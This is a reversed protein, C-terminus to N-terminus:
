HKGNGNGNGNSYGNGNGHSPGEISKQDTEEEDRKMESSKRIIMAVLEGLETHETVTLRRGDASLECLETYREFQRKALMSFDYESERPEVQLERMRIKALRLNIAQQKAAYEIEHTTKRMSLLKPLLELAAKPDRTQVLSESAIETCFGEMYQAASRVENAFERDRLLEKKYRNVSIDLKICASSANSGEQIARVIATREEDSLGGHEPTTRLVPPRLRNEVLASFGWSEAQDRDLFENAIAQELWLRRRLREDPSLEPYRLNM